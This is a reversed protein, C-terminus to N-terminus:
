NRGVMAAMRTIRTLAASPNRHADLARAYGECYGEAHAKDIAEAHLIRADADAAARCLAAVCLGALTGLTFAIGGVIALTM